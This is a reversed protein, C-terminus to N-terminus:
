LTLIHPTSRHPIHSFISSGNQKNLQALDSQSRWTRQSMKQCDDTCGEVALLTEGVVLTLQKGLRRVIDPSDRVWQIAEKRSDRALPAATSMYAIVRELGRSSSVVKPILKNPKKNIM